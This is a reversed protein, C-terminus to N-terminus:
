NVHSVGVLVVRSLAAGLCIHLKEATAFRDEPKVRELDIRGNAVWFRMLDYRHFLAVDQQAAEQQLAAQYPDVNANARLFRSFQPDILMLDAGAGHVLSAGDALTDAFDGPSLNRVAEVTGTQWLVLRYPHRSIAVRMKELQQAATLGRQSEVDLTIQLDPRSARLSQLMRHPFSFDPPAHDPGQMTASGVALIALSKNAVAQAVNPLSGVNDTIEAPAGCDPSLAEAHTIPAGLVAILALFRLRMWCNM